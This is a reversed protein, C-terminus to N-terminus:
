KKLWPRLYNKEAFQHECPYNARITNKDFHPDPKRTHEPVSSDFDFSKQYRLGHIPIMPKLRRIFRINTSKKRSTRKLTFMPDVM